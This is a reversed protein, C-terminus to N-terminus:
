ELKLWEDIEPRLLRKKDPETMNEKTVLTSGTDIRTAVSEGRLVKVGTTVGQYGMNFPDQLVLGSIAGRELAATLKDSADFGIFQLKGALGAKELALMMGFTTSENPCFIGDIGGNAAGLSLLLSESASLASETTAGGYQNDSKVVIDPHARVAEIFGDERKRTSDSGEQYRLVMVNGKGGLTRAMAEGALRGAAFNDTAVFSKHADGKLGSDFIVVDVDSAAASKVATYLASDNVPALAIASVRQATFTQVLEIQGKLDDEKLPGKWHVKVGLERSAKIAGAHVAKWFEHTTGKPIVAIEIPKSQDPSGKTPAPAETKSCAISLALVWLWLLRM